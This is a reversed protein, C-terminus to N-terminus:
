LMSASLFPGGFEPHCRFETGYVRAAVGSALALADARAQTKVREVSALGEFYCFTGFLISALCSFAAIPLVIGGREYRRRGAQSKPFSAVM